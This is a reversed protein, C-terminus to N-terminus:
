RQTVGLAASCFQRRLKPAALACRQVPCCLRAASAAAPASTCVMSPETSGLNVLTAEHLAGMWM